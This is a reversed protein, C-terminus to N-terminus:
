NCSLPLELYLSGKVEQVAPAGMIGHEPLKRGWMLFQRLSGVVAGLVVAVADAHEGV